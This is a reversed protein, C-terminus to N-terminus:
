SRLFVVTAKLPLFPLWFNLLVKVQMNTGRTTCLRLSTVPLILVVEVDQLDSDLNCMQASKCGVAGM